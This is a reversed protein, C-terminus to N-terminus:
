PCYEYCGLDPWTECRSSGDIDLFAEPTSPLGRERAYSGATLHHDDAPGDVFAPNQNVAIGSLFISGNSVNQDTRLMDDMFTLASAGLPDIDLKFENTNSGHIISNRVLSTGIDRVQVAGTIDEFYNTVIFAPTNRIEWDWFNGITMHNLHYEGGGTLAVSYQGADGVLLNNATIRYNRSLIGAASCNLIKVNNLVLKNITTPENVSLPWTECQIGILNNRIEVNEFKNDENAFDGENIWIRDWQGPLDEYASELRDGQFVIPDDTTGLAEIWGGRYVWLGGGGHFYVKTGPQIELKNCSDVVAYGYIVHPKDNTWTEVEGCIQNGGGDFGGVVYSFAPFGQIFQDPYHFHADQGWALLLVQQDAGNTNFLIHDEFIFPDNALNEGLTAEVFIYISDGGLIEVDTFSLGSSGDVNIRFPSPSGGELAIDVRVANSNPNRATFRKTVSGVTTFITDYLVTDQSFVLDVRDETFQADKRCAPLMAILVLGIPLLLRIPKM